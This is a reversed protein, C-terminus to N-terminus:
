FDTEYREVHWNKDENRRSKAAEPSNVTSSGSPLGLSSVTSELQQINIDSEKETDSGVSPNIDSSLIAQEELVGNRAGILNIQVRDNLTKLRLSLEEIHNDPIQKYVPSYRLNPSKSRIASVFRGTMSQKVETTTSSQTPISSPATTQIPESIIPRTGQSTSQSTSQM